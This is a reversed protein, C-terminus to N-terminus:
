AAMPLQSTSHYFTAELEAPPVNGIPELLRRHNFWDVWEKFHIAWHSPSSCVTFSEFGNTLPWKGFSWTSWGTGPNTPNPSGIFMPENRVCPYRDGRAMSVSRDGLNACLKREPVYRVTSTSFNRRVRLLVASFHNRQRLEDGKASQVRVTTLVWICSPM